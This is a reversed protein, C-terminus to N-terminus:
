RVLRAIFRDLSASGKRTLYAAFLATVIATYVDMLYHIRFIIVSLLLFGFLAWAAVTLKRNGIRSMEIAALLSVGTQASFYLDNSIGYFVFLTPIGPNHWIIDNPVPLAVLLQLLQRFAFFLFLSMYPSISRKYLTRIILFFVCIDYWASCTGLVVDQARLREQFYSNISATWEQIRDGVGCDPVSLTGIVHQLVMGLISTYLIFQSIYFWSVKRM